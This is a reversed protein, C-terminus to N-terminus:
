DPIVLPRVIFACAFRRAVKAAPREVEPMAGSNATKAYTPVTELRRPTILFLGLELGAGRIWKDNDSVRRKKM